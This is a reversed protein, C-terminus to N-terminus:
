STNTNAVGVCSERHTPAAKLTHDIPGAFRSSWDAPTLIFLYDFHRSCVHRAVDNNHCSRSWLSLLLVYRVDDRTYTYAKLWANWVSLTTSTGAGYLRVGLASDATLAAHRLRTLPLWCASPRSGCAIYGGEGKGMRWKRGCLYRQPLHGRVGGGWPAAAPWRWPEHPGQLACV